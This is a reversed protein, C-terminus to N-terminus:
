SNWIHTYSYLINQNFWMGDERIGGRDISRKGLNINKKKKTKKLVSLENLTGEILICTPGDILSPYGWLACVQSFSVRQQEAAMVLLVKEALILIWLRNMSPKQYDAAPRTDKGCSKGGWKIFWLM